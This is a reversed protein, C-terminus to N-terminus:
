HFLFSDPRCLRARTVGRIVHLISVFFITKWDVQTARWAPSQRPVPGRTDANGVTGLLGRAPPRSEVISVSHVGRLLPRLRSQPASWPCLSVSRQPRDRIQMEDRVEPLNGSRRAQWKGEQQFSSPPILSLGALQPFPHCSATSFSANFAAASVCGAM